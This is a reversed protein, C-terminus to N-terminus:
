RVTKELEDLYSDLDGIVKITDLQGDAAALNRALKLLVQRAADRDIKPGSRRSRSRRRRTRGSAAALRRKVQLPYRANFQRLTLQGVSPHESKAKEYLAATSINPDKKLEEEVLQSIKEKKNSM